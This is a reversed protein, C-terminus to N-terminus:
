ATEFDVVARGAAATVIFDRVAEHLPHKQYLALAQMDTFESLLVVDYGGESVEDAVGAEIRLLGPIKGSLGELRGKIALANERRGMGNAEERLRWMVIHKVM